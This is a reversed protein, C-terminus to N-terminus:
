SEDRFRPCDDRYPRDGAEGNVRYAVIDAMWRLTDGYSKQRTYFHTTSIYKNYTVTNAPFACFRRLYDEMDAPPTTEDLDGQLVLVPTERETLGPTNSDLLQSHIPFDGAITDNVLANYFAETYVRSPDKPYFNFVEHVCMRTADSRVTPLWLDNFVVSLDVLDEGYFAEWAVWRYASFEPRTLMHDKQDTVNGFSLIGALPVDPAYEPQIDRASFVTAGGQSYGGIFVADFPTTQGSGALPAGGSLNYVSRAADLAVRGQLPAVYYPQLRDPDDFYVYDAMITIFGQAAYSLLYFRFNGWDAEAPNERTAACKDVLGTTGPGFVFIPAALPEDLRPVWMRAAVQTIAGDLDETTITLAYEDVAYSASVFNQAGYFQLIVDDMQERSVTTVFRSEIVQGPSTGQAATQTIGLGSLGIFAIIVFIFRM